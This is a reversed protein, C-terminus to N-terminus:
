TYIGHWLKAQLADGKMASDLGVSSEVSNVEGGIEEREHQEISWAEKSNLGKDNWSGWLSHVYKSIQFLYQEVVRENDQIM